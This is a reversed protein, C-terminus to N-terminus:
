EHLLFATAEPLDKDKWGYFLLMGEVISGDPRVVPQVNNFRWGQYPKHHPTVDRLKKWSSGKDASIWEEIRGGGHKDMYGGALYGEGVILYAHLIGKADLSLYGSNWQNNSSRILTQKWRGKKRHVYYYDHSRINKGSLLHLFSPEDKGDM